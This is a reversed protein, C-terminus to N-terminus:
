KQVSPTTPAASHHTFSKLEELTDYDRESGDGPVEIFSPAASYLRKAAGETGTEAIAVRLDVTRWLAILPELFGDSSRVVAASHDGIVRALRPLLRSAFPADVTTIFVFPTAIEESGRAIAAIPGAFPPNEAVLQVDAPLGEPQRSSVVIRPAPGLSRLVIDILREGDAVACAKDIGGMRTARGGALVMASIEGSSPSDCAPPVSAEDGSRM